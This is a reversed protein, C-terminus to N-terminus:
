DWDLKKEDVLSGLVSATFAKTNSGIPMITQPTVPLKKAVDRYGYGKLLLIEGNRVVAISLGPVKWDAMQEEVFKDFGDLPAVSPKTQSIASVSLLFLALLSLLSNLKM